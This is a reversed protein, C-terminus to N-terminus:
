FFDPLLINKEYGSELFLFYNVVKKGTPTQIIYYFLFFSYIFFNVQTGGKQKAKRVDQSGKYM